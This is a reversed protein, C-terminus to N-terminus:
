PTLYQDLGNVTAEHRDPQADCYTDATQASAVVYRARARARARGGGESAPNVLARTGGVTCVHERQRGLVADRKERREAEGLKRGVRRLELEPM